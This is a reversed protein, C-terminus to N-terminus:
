ACAGESVTGIISVQEASLPAGHVALLKTMETAVRAFDRRAKQNKRHSLAMRIALAEDSWLRSVEGNFLARVRRESMDPCYRRLDTALLPYLVKAPQRPAILDALERMLGQPSSVRYGEEGCTNGHPPRSNDDTSVTELRDAVTERMKSVSVAMRKAHVQSPPDSALFDFALTTM